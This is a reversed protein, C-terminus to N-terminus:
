RYQLATDVSFAGPGCAAGNCNKGSRFVTEPSFRGSSDLAGVDGGSVAGGSEFLEEM